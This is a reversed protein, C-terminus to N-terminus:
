RRTLKSVNAPSLVHEFPNFGGHSASFGFQAWDGMGASRPGTAGAAPGTATVAVAVASAIVAGARGAIRIQTVRHQHSAIHSRTV